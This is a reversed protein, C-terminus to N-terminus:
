GTSAAVEISQRVRDIKYARDDGTGSKEGRPANPAKRNALTFRRQNSKCEKGQGEARLGRPDRACFLLTRHTQMCEFPDRRGAFSLQSNDTAYYVGCGPLIGLDQIRTTPSHILMSIVHGTLCANRSKM